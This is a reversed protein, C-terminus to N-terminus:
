VRNQSRLPSHSYNHHVILMQFANGLFLKAENWTIEIDTLYQFTDKKRWIDVFNFIYAPAYINWINTGINFDLITIFYHFLIQKLNGSMIQEFYCPNM